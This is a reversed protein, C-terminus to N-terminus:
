DQCWVDDASKCLSHFLKESLSLVKLARQTQEAGDATSASYMRWMMAVSAADPLETILWCIASLRFSFCSSTLRSSETETCVLRLNNTCIKTCGGRFNESTRFNVCPVTNLCTQKVRTQNKHPQSKNEHTRTHGPAHHQRKGRSFFLFFFSFFVNKKEERKKRNRKKSDKENDGRTTRPTHSKTHRGKGQEKAAFSFLFSFVVLFFPFFIIKRNKENKSRATRM